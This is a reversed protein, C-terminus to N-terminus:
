DPVIVGNVHKKYEEITMSQIGNRADDTRVNPNTQTTGNPGVDTTIGAQDGGWPNRFYV